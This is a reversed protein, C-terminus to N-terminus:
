ARVYMSPAQLLPQNTSHQLRVQLWHEVSSSPGHTSPQVFPACHTNWTLWRCTAREHAYGPVVCRVRAWCMHLESGTLATICRLKHLFSRRPLATRVVWVQSSAVQEAMAAARTTAHFTAAVTQVCATVEPLMSCQLQVNLRESESLLEHTACRKLLSRTWRQSSHAPVSVPPPDDDSPLERFLDAVRLVEALCVDLQGCAQLLQGAPRNLDSLLAPTSQCTEDQATCDAVHAVKESPACSVARQLYAVCQAVVNRLALTPTQVASFLTAAQQVADECAQLQCQAAAAGRGVRQQLLIVAMGCATESEAAVRAAKGIADRQTTQEDVYLLKATLETTLQVHRQLQADCGTTCEGVSQMEAEASVLLAHTQMTLAEARVSDQQARDCESDADVSALQLDRVDIRVSELNAALEVSAAGCAAVAAAGESALAEACALEHASNGKRQQADTLQHELEHLKLAHEERQRTADSAAAACRRLTEERQRQARQLRQTLAQLAERKIGVSKNLCQIRADYTCALMRREEASTHASAHLRRMTSVRPALEGEAGALSAALTVYRAECVAHM